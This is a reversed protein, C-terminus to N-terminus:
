AFLHALEARVRDAVTAVPKARERELECTCHSSAGLYYNRACGPETCSEAIKMWAPKYEGRLRGATKVRVARGTVTNVGDWGGYPSEARLRVPVVAGSVKAWYTKGVEVERKKM